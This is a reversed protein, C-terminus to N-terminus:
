AQTTPAQQQQSQQQPSKQQQQQQYSQLVQLQAQYEAASARASAISRARENRRRLQDRSYSYQSANHTQQHYNADADDGDGDRETYFAKRLEYATNAACGKELQTLDGRMVNSREQLTQAAYRHMIVPALMELRTVIGTLEGRENIVALHRLAFQSFLRFTVDASVHEHVPLSSRNCYPGLDLRATLDRRTLGRTVDSLAPMPFNVAEDFEAPTFEQANSRWVRRLLVVLLQKRLIMGVVARNCGVGQHNSVHLQHSVDSHRNRACSSYVVPFGNHTCTALVEILHAVPENIGLCVPHRTMVQATTLVKLQAPPERQLVPLLKNGIILSTLPESISSGVLHAVIAGIVVPMFYSYDSMVELILIADAIPNDTSGVLFAACGVAAYAGPNIPLGSDGQNNWRALMVGIFRGIIAGITLNPLFIGAVVSTICVMLAGLSYLIGWFALQGLSFWHPIQRVLMHKLLVNQRVMSLDAMTNHQGEPCNYRQTKFTGASATEAAETAPFAPDIDVCDWFFPVFYIITSWIAAAAATDAVRVWKPYKATLQNRYLTARAIAQAFLAGLSGGIVGVFVFAPIEWWVFQTVASGVYMTGYLRLNFDGWSDLLGTTFFAITLVSVVAAFLVRLGLDLNWTTGTEHAAFLTGGLPATVSSAVGCAAGICSFDRREVDNAFSPVPIRRWWRPGCGKRQVVRPPAPIRRRPAASYPAGPLGQAQAQAQAQRQQHSQIQALVQAQQAQAQQQAYTLPQQTQQQQLQQQQMYQRQQQQQQYLGAGIQLTNAMGAASPLAPMAATLGRMDLVSPMRGMRPAPGAALHQQQQQLALQQQQQQQLAQQQALAAARPSVVTPPAAAVPASLTVAPNRPPPLAPPASSSSFARSGLPEPSLAPFHDGAEEEENDEHGHGHGHTQGRGGAVSAAQPQQSPSQQAATAPRTKSRSVSNSRGGKSNSRKSKSDSHDGDEDGDEDEDEDHDDEDDDEDEDCSNGAGGAGAGGGGSRGLRTLSFSDSRGRGSPESDQPDQIPRGSADFLAREGAAGADDDANGSAIYSTIDVSELGWRTGASNDVNAYAQPDVEAMNENVRDINLMASENMSVRRRVPATALSGAAGAASGAAGPGGRQASGSVSAVAGGRRQGYAANASQRQRSGMAPEAPLQSLAETSDADILAAARGHGGKGKAKGGARRRAAAAGDDDDGDDSYGVAGTRPARASASSSVGAGDGGDGNDTDGLLSMQIGGERQAAAARPRQKRASGPAGAAAGAAQTAGVGAAAAMNQHSPVRRGMRQQQHQQAYQQQQQQQQQQLASRPALVDQEDLYPHHSPFVPRDEEDRIEDRPGACCCLRLVVTRMHQALWGGILAGTHILPGQVGMPMSAAVCLVTIFVKSYLARFTFLTPINAGNLFARVDPLGSASIPCHYNIVAATICLFAANWATFILWGLFYNDSQLFYGVWGLKIDNLVRTGFIAAFGLFGVCVGVLLALLWKFFIRWQNAAWTESVAAKLYLSNYSPYYDLSNNKARLLMKYRELTLPKTALPQIFHRRAEEELTAFTKAQQAKRQERLAAARAHAARLVEPSRAMYAARFAIAEVSDDEPERSPGGRVAFPFAPPASSSAATSAASSPPPSAGAAASAAPSAGASARGAPTHAAGPATATAPSPSSLASRLGASAARAPSGSVAAVAVAASAAAASAVAAAASAVSAAAATNSNALAQAQAEAKAAAAAAAEAAAEAEAQAQAAQAAQAAVAAAAAAQAASKMEALAMNAAALDAAVAETIAVQAAPDLDRPRVGGAIAEAEEAAAEAALDAAEAAAALAARPDPGAAEEDYDDDDYPDADGYGGGYGDGYGDGAAAGDGFDDVPQAAPHAALSAPRATAVSSARSPRTAYGGGGGGGGATAAASSSHSSSSVGGASSLSVTISSPSPGPQPQAVPPLLAGEPHSYPDLAPHTEESAAAAAAAAAALNAVTNATEPFEVGPYALEMDGVPLTASLSMPVGLPVGTLPVGALPVGAMLPLAVTPPFGAADPALPSGQLSGPQSAAAAAAAAAPAPAGSLGALLPSGGASVLPPQAFIDVGAPFAVGIPVSGASLVSGASAVSGAYAASFASADSVSGASLPGSGAAGTAATAAADSAPVTPPFAAAAAPPFGAQSPFGPGPPFGAATPFAAASAAAAAAAAAFAAPGPLLSFPDPGADVASVGAATVSALDLDLDLGMPSAAFGSQLHPPLFEDFSPSRLDEYGGASAVALSGLDAGDTGDPHITTGDVLMVSMRRPRSMSALRQPPQPPQQQQQQQSVNNNNSDSPEEDSTFPLFPPASASDDSLPDRSPDSM